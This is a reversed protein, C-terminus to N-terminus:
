PFQTAHVEFLLTRASCPGCRLFLMKPAWERKPNVRSGFVLLLLCTTLFPCRPGQIQSPPTRWATQARPRWSGAREGQELM